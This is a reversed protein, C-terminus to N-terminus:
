CARFKNRRFLYFYLGTMALWLPSLGLVCWVIKSPLGAFHGFHLKRFMDVFIAWPAANRIDYASLLEGTNRDYTVASAYQSILINTDSLAGFFTIQVDEEYPFLFYTPKFGPIHKATQEMLLQFDLDDNYLKHSPTIHEEIHHEVEHIVESANWYGGTFALLILVPSSVIGIMKHVDSYFIRKAAAFRLVFLKKWFQRHLIIGSIGLFLLVVAFILGFVTGLLGLLFTYHLSLLWDTIDHTVSVPSSLLEGKYQDLYVKFWDGSSKEVLYATDSRQKDDFIEWSGTLYQPNAQEVIAILENHAGSVTLQAPQLLTDIETKFVLISGTVAIIILPILAFLAFRSHWKFLNKRM